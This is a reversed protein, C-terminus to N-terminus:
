DKAIRLLDQLVVEVESREIPHVLYYFVKEQRAIRELRLSANEAIVIVPLQSRVAHIVSIIGLHSVSAQGFGLVIALPRHTVAQRALERADTMVRLDPEIRDCAESLMAIDDERCGFALLEPRATM